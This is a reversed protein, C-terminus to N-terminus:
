GQAKNHECIHAVAEFATALALGAGCKMRMWDHHALIAGAAFLRPHVPRSSFDTPRMAKDTELGCQNIPHGGPHFFTRKHWRTRPGPPTVPLGFVTERVTTRDAQLGKGLFRGTALLAFRAEVTVEPRSKGLHFVFPDKPGAPLRAELAMKQSFTCVNKDPLGRDFAQRLRTGAISPPLTPIEFVTKGTLDQLHQIIRTPETLGLIAPFGIYRTDHGLAVIRRALQERLAAENMMWALHEPYLEGACGPFDITAARLGPWNAAQNEVMQRGSFGKLGDFDVILTPAKTELAQVGQWASVPVKYTPKVTGLPTLIRANTGEHGTYPLGQQALFSCFEEIAQRTHEQSVKAYPHNPMDAVLARRAAWPDDWYVGKDVPHVGMLDILGTSFDIGGTSGCLAVRLGKNAAFLAAGMGAFGSGMVMLDCTEKDKIM